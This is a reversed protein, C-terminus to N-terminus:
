FLKKFESQKFSISAFCGGDAESVTVFIDVNGDASPGLFPITEKKWVLSGQSDFTINEMLNETNGNQTPFSPISLRGATNPHFGSARVELFRHSGGGPPASITTIVVKASNIRNNSLNCPPCSSATLVTCLILFLGTKFFIDAYARMDQVEKKGFAKV